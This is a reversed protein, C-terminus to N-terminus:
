QAGEHPEQFSHSLIAENKSLLIKHLHHYTILQPQLVFWLCEFSSVRENESSQAQLKSAETTGGVWCRQTWILNSTPSILPPHPSLITMIELMQSSLCRGVWWSHVFYNWSSLLLHGLLVHCRDQVSRGGKWGAGGSLMEAPDTVAQKWGAKLQKVWVRNNLDLYRGWAPLLLVKRGLDLGLSDLWSLGPLNTGGKWVRFSLSPWIQHMM